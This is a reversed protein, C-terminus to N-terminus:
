NCECNEPGLMKIKKGQQVEKLRLNCQVLSADFFNLKFVKDLMESGTWEATYYNGGKYYWEGFYFDLENSEKTNLNNIDILSFGSLDSDWNSVIYNKDATIFFNGGFLSKIEGFRNIILLEGEYDGYKSLLFYGELPQTEAYNIGYNGGVAEIREFSRNQILKGDISTRIFAECSFYSNDKNPRIQLIDIRVQGLYETKLSYSNHPSFDKDGSLYGEGLLEIRSKHMFGFPGNTPKVLWWNEDKQPFYIFKEGELIRGIVPYQNGSSLRVNTYGDPDNIIGISSQCFIPYYSYLFWFLLFIFKM